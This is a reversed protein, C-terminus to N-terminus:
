LEYPQHIGPMPMPYHGNKDPVVPPDMDMSLKAPVLNPGKAVAEDWTVVQGSYTAMRGLIVTMSTDAGWYGENLPKNNLIADVLQVHEEFWGNNVPKVFKKGARLANFHGRGRPGQYQWSEEGIYGNMRRTPTRGATTLQGSPVRYGGVGRTGHAVTGSTSWCGPMNRSQGYFKVGDAYTYEIFHHDFNQGHEPGRPRERGGMGNAEVPHEGKIWNAVDVFHIFGGELIVDGSVWTFGHWNRMQYEMETQDSRKLPFKEQYHFGGNAYVQLLHIEGISGGRLRKVVERACPEHRFQHGVCVKLGKADALRNTEMVLRYGAADVCVPKELFAHKGAKIVAQYQVPRFAPPTCLLVLDVDCALVKRYADFGSFLREDPVDIQNGHQCVEHLFKLSQRAKDEFVDAVAVLQVHAGVRMCDSAAGTGRGGCGVLAIKVRDNDGAYVRSALVRDVALVGGVLKASTRLFRRRSNIHNQIM